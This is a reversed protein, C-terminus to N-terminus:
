SRKRALWCQIGAAERGIRRSSRAGRAFMTCKTSCDTLRFVSCGADVPVHDASVAIGATCEATLPGAVPGDRLLHQKPLQQM